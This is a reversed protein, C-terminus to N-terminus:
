YMIRNDVRSDMAVSVASGVAIGLDGTNFVCPHAKSKDECSKFGCLGCQDVGIPNFKTGILLVAESELINGADRQFFRSGGRRKIMEKM